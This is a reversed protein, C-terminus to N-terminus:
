KDDAGNQFEVANELTLIGNIKSVEQVCRLHLAKLTDDDIKNLAATINALKAAEVANKFMLRSLRQEAASVSAKVADTILPSLYSVNKEENLYGIYFEVAKEVFESISKCNDSKYIANIAKKTQADLSLCFREKAM